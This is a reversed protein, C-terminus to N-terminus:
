VIVVAFPFGLCATTLNTLVNAQEGTYIGKFRETTVTPPMADSSESSTEQFLREARITVIEKETPLASLEDICASHTHGPDQGLSKKPKQCLVPDSNINKRVVSLFPFVKQRALSFAQCGCFDAV